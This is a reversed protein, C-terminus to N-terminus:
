RVKQSWLHSCMMGVFLDSCSGGGGRDSGDQLMCGTSPVWIDLLVGLLQVLDMAPSGPECELVVTDSGPLTSVM